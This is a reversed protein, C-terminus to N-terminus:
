TVKSPLSSFSANECISSAAHDFGWLMLGAINGDHELDHGALWASIAILVFTVVSVARPDSQFPVHEIILSQSFVRRKSSTSAEKTTLGSPKAWVLWGASSQVGAM